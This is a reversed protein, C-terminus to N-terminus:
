WWSELQGVRKWSSREPDHLFGDRLGLMDYTGSPVFTSAVKALREVKWGDKKEALYEDLLEWFLKMAEDDGSTYFCIIDEWAKSITVAFRKRIWDQFGQLFDDVHGGFKEAAYEYGRLFAALKYLSNSGVYMPARVRMWHLQEAVFSMFRSSRLPILAAAALQM